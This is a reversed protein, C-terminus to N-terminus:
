YSLGAAENASRTTSCHGESPDRQESESRGRVRSGRGCAAEELLWTLGFRVTVCPSSFSLSYRVSEPYRSPSAGAPGSRWLPKARRPRVVNEPEDPREVQEAEGPELSELQESGELLSKDTMTTYSPFRRLETILLPATTCGLGAVPVVSREAKDLCAGGINAETDTLSCDASHAMSVRGMGDWGM